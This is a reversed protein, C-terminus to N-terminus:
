TGSRSPVDSAASSATPAAVPSTPTKMFREVAANALRCMEDNDNPKKKRKNSGGGEEMIADNMRAKREQISYIDEDVTGGCVMKIIKVPKKQGIRHCRDEAQRDNFPNFDLDHLICVDASTLNLGMGGARTSLLFVPISDDNTFEDLLDQRESVATQGDLRLYTMQLSDMLHGMLDLIKTWQSFILIRHGKSILEPLLTRLRVMKPSCFLDNELLTYRDLYKSRAPSEEIMSIAACHIQYDSFKDLEDRVLQLTCSADNGFWHYDLALHALNDREEESLYRNRLLLPHNAAKRLTTFLHKSAAADNKKTSGSSKQARARVHSSLITEYASRTADDMPVIEVTRTKPPLQDLVDEKKRRLVFPAFLQKLKRYAKADADKGSGGELHVFYELMREGGDNEDEDDNDYGRKKRQSSKTKTDFLPMLFCLLSMLEKPSNQVPTGTLLLRHSTQFKNLNQYRLGKPNKLTHGEDVVLYDFEFKRLFSRDGKNSDSSFYSFTTLVADLPKENDAHRFRDLEARIVERQAQNGHYKVVVMDPAFKKFENMWNTLVSAPVVILHPRQQTQQKKSQHNLWALFAITQVTKGLGMEDALIGNVNMGGKRSGKKGGGGAKGNGFMTRNLLAMWNVGLLQYEALKVNPMLEKMTEDSIWLDDKSKENEDKDDGGKEDGKGGGAGLIMGKIKDNGCWGSVVKVIKASLINAENLVGAATQEEDNGVAEYVEVEDDEDEHMDDSDQLESDDKYQPAKNKAPSAKKIQELSSRSKDAKKKKKLRKHQPGQDNLSAKMAKEFARTEDDDAFDDPSFSSTTSKRSSKRPTDSLDDDSLLDIAANDNQHNSSSTAKGWSEDESESDDFIRRKKSAKNRSSAGNLVNEDDEDEEEKKEEEFEKEASTGSFYKSKTKKKAPSPSSLDVTSASSSLSQPSDVKKNTKRAKKQPTDGNIIDDMSDNADSMEEDDSDSLSIPAKKKVARKSRGGGRAPPPVPSSEEIEDEEMSNQSSPPQWTSKTTRRSAARASRSLPTASKAKVTKSKKKKGGGDDDEDEMGSDWDGEEESLEADDDDGSAAIFGDDEEEEEEDSYGAFSSEEDSSCDDNRKGRSRKAGGKAGGKGATGKAAGRRNKAKRVEAASSKAKQIASDDKGVKRTAMWDNGGGSNNNETTTTSGAAYSAFPNNKM